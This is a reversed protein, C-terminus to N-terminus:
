KLDSPCSTGLVHPALVLGQCRLFGPLSCCATPSACPIDMNIKNDFREEPQFRGRGRGRGGAMGGTMPGRGGTMPGRGGTTATGGRGGTM